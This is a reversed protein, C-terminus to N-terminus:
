SFSRFLRGLKKQSSLSDPRCLIRFGENQPPFHPTEHEPANKCYDPRGADARDSSYKGLFKKFDFTQLSRGRSDPLDQGAEENCNEFKPHKVRRSFGNCTALRLTVQYLLHRRFHRGNQVNFIIGIVRQQQLM